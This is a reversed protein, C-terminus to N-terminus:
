KLPSSIVDMVFLAFIGMGPDEDSMVLLSSVSNSARRLLIYEIGRAKDTAWTTSSTKLTFERLKQRRCFYEADAHIALVPHAASQTKTAALTAGPSM